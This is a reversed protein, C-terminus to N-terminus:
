QSNPSCHYRVLMRTKPSTQGFHNIDLRSSIPTEILVAQHTNIKAQKINRLTTRRWHKLKTALVALNKTHKSTAVSPYPRLNLSYIALNWHHYLKPKRRYTSNRLPDRWTQSWYSKSLDRLAPRTKHVGPLHMWSSLQDRKVNSDAISCKM